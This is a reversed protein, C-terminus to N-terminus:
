RPASEGQALKHYRDVALGDWTQRRPEGSPWDVVVKGVHDATGLGFLLRRDGSSLYSGGGYAFRSLTRGDAELTVRAGVVDRRGEGQLEIGLWHGAGAVENRLLVAPENVHSIVVDLRGRNELDGVVLGRGRHPSRFYLGGRDSAIAFRGKGTNRLLVPEQAVTTGVPHHIVHGNSILVDEWGDLDLDAFATGFGVFQRGIAAVGSAQTQYTFMGGGDNRYLGHLENQYNTVFLSPRGSGDPDGVALGMSGNAVGRDDRAAGARLGREEFKMGGRNVYLLKDTTDNAVYLDVRGDGDLDCALVGLGKGKDKAGGAYLGAKESVDTFTGDGNNRYLLHPLANFQSPPCVDPQGAGAYSCRPHNAFSWDVYHCVYLDPFGDGDLDAWAASTSWLTDTLGAKLTVEVFHRGGGPAPENHYLVLRGWGTVLLDSWGDCDYDAVAAGHTYFLPRDLGVEATVDRFKGGGQNRFLKSRRGLIEKGDAGGFSGGGPLFVDLLGDGDFDILAVGGGLSELIALHGAEEGNHYTQDIGSDATVDRFYPSEVAVPTTPAAGRPWGGCSAILVTACGLLLALAMRQTPRM